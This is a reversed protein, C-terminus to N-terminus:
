RTRTAWGAQKLGDYANHCPHGGPRPTQFDIYSDRKAGLYEDAGAHWYRGGFLVGLDHRAPLQGLALHAVDERERAAAVHPDNVYGLQKPRAGSPRQLRCM